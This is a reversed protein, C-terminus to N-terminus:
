DLLDIAPDSIDEAIDGDSGDVVRVRPIHNYSGQQKIDDVYRM